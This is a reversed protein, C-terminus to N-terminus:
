VFTQRCGELNYGHYDLPPVSHTYLFVIVSTRFSQTDEQCTILQKLSIYIPMTMILLIETRQSQVHCSEWERNGKLM